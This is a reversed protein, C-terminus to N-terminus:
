QGSGNHFAFRATAQVRDAAFHDECEGVLREELAKDASLDAALCRVAFLSERILGSSIGVQGVCTVLVLLALKCYLRM